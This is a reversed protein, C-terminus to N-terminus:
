CDPKAAPCVVAANGSADLVVRGGLPSALALTVSRQQAMADCAIPEGPSAHPIAQVAVAVASSSEAVQAKYDAGCPGSTLPAGWFTFTLTRGDASVTSGSNLYGNLIGGNWLAPPALAPYAVEGMVGSATFLWASIQANGRDTAFGFLGFRSGNVVLPQATACNPDSTDALPRMMAALAAAASIAPYTATTGTTWSVQARAPVVNSLTIGSRFKHCGAAIKAESSTFGSAASANGVMVVPRPVLAAPFGSWAVLAEAPPSVIPTGGSPVRGCALATLAVM